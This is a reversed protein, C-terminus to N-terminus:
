IRLFNLWEVHSLWFEQIIIVFIAAPLWLYYSSIRENKKRLFLNVFLHALLFVILFVLSYYLWGPYGSLFFGIAAIWPEEAYFFREGCKKNIFKALIPFVLSILFAVAWPAFFRFGVYQFFYFSSNYPPLLYQSIGGGNRWYGYQLWSQYVEYLFISFVSFFFFCRFASDKRDRVFLFRGSLLSTGIAM